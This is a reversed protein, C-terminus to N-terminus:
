ACDRAFVLDLRQVPGGEEGFELTVGSRDSAWHAAVESSEPEPVKGSVVCSSHVREGRNMRDYDIERACIFGTCREGVSVTDPGYPSELRLLDNPNPTGAWVVAGFLLSLTVITLSFAWLTERIGSSKRGRNGAPVLSQRRTKGAIDSM